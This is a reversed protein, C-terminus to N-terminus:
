NELYINYIHNRKSILIERKAYLMIYSMICELSEVNQVNNNMINLFDNYYIIYSRLQDELYSNM